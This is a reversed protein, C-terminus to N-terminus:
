LSLNYYLLYFNYSEVSWTWTFQVNIQTQQLVEIDRIIWDFDVEEWNLLCVWREWDFDITDWSVLTWLYDIEFWYYSIKVWDIEWDIDSLIIKFKPTIAQNSKTLSVNFLNDWSQNTFWATQNRSKKIPNVSLFEIDVDIMQWVWLNADFKIDQLVVDIYKLYWNENIQLEGWRNLKTKLNLITQELIEHSKTIIRFQVTVVKDTLRRQNIKWGNWYPKIYTSIDVNPLDRINDDLFHIWINDEREFFDTLNTQSIVQDWSKEIFVYKPANIDPWIDATEAIASNVVAGPNLGSDWYKWYWYLNNFM